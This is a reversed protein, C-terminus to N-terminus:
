AAGGPLYVGVVKGILDFGFADERFPGDFGGSAMRYAPRDFHRVYRVVERRVNLRSSYASRGAREYELRIWGDWSLGSPPSQSERVYLSGVQWDERSLCGRDFVIAMGHMAVVEIDRHDPVRDFGRLGAFDLRDAKDTDLGPRPIAVIANM